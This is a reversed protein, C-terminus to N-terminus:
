LEILLIFPHLTSRTVKVIESRTVNNEQAFEGNVSSSM